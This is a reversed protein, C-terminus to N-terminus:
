LTRSPCYLVLRRVHLLVKGGHTLHRGNAEMM